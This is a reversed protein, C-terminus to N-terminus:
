GKCNIFGLKFMMVGNIEGDAFRLYRSRLHVDSVGRSLRGGEKAGDLM